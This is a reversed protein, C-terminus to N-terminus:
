NAKIPRTTLLRRWKLASQEPHLSAIGVGYKSMSVPRHQNAWLLRDVVSPRAGGKTELIIRDAFRSQGSGARADPLACTLDIDITLRSTPAGCSPVVQRTQRLYNTTLSPVLETVPVDTLGRAALTSALWDLEAFSLEPDAWPRPRRDKVTTGRPGRTKVELWREGSQLYERTRVKFRRRRGRGAAQYCALEPTDYYCSLYNFWTLGEIRLVRTHADLQATFNPLEAASLLYKRDHRTLMATSTVLEALEITATTM